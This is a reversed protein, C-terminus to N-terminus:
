TAEDETVIGGPPRQIHPDTERAMVESYHVVPARLWDPQHAMVVNLGSEYKPLLRSYRRNMSLLWWFLVTVANDAKAVHRLAAVANTLDGSLLRRVAYHVFQVYLNRRLYARAYKRDIGNPLMELLASYVGAGETMQHVFTGRARSFQGKHSRLFMLPEYICGVDFHSAIRALMEFDGASHMDACFLGVKQLAAPNLTVNAINGAIQGHYFMIQATWQTSLAMADQRPPRRRTVMGDGDILDYYSYWFGVQPLRRFWFLERELCHPRLVDDQSWMRLYGGRAQGILFNLTSFLGKGADNRFFRIRPDSYSGVMEVSDDTSADDCILFEFDSFTQALVSDMSERLWPVGNRVPLM